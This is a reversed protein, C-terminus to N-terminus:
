DFDLLYKGDAPSHDGPLFKVVFASKGSTLWSHEMCERLLPLIDDLNGFVQTSLPNSVVKVNNKLKLSKIFAIVAAEYEATLPYMSIEVSAQM